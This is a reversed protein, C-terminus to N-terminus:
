CAGLKTPNRQAYINAIKEDIVQFCLITAVKDDEIIKLGTEGNVHCQEIHWLNASKGIIVELKAFFHGISSDGIMTRYIAKVHGGSDTYMRAEENLLSILGSLDQQEIAQHFQEVLQNHISQDISYPTQDQHLKVRARTAIKRTNDISKGIVNAVFDFKQEFVDHLIFTAREVPNLKELAFMLAISISDNQEHNEDPGRYSDVAMPEPIWAGVYEVKAHHSSKLKNLSLRSTVKMLWAQPNEIVTIDTATWKLYTDQVIDSADAASGLIRYSLGLLKPRLLEFIEIHNNKM